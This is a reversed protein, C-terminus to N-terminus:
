GIEGLSDIEKEVSWSVQLSRIKKCLKKPLNWTNPLLNTQVQSILLLLQELFSTAENTKIEVDVQLLQLVSFM